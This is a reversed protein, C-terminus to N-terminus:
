GRGGDRGGERGGVRAVFALNVLAIFPISAAFTNVSIEVRVLPLPQYPSFLPPLSPSLVLPFCITRTKLCRHVRSESVEGGKRGGERM